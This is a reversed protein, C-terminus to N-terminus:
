EGQSRHARNAQDDPRRAGSKTAWWTPPRRDLNTFSTGGHVRSREVTYRLPHCGRGRPSPNESPEAGECDARQPDKPYGLGARGLHLSLVGTAAPADAAALAPAIVPTLPAHRPADVAAAVCAAISTRASPQGDAIFASPAGAAAGGTVHASARVCLLGRKLRQPPQLASRTSAPWRRATCHITLEISCAVASGPPCARCSGRASTESHVPGNCRGLVEPRGTVGAVWSPPESM